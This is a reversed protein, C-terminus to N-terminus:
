SPCFDAAVVRGIALGAQTVGLTLLSFLLARVKERPEAPKRARRAGLGWAISGGISLGAGIGGLVGAAVIDGQRLGIEEDPCPHTQSAWGLYAISSLLSGIGFALMLRGRRQLAWASRVEPAVKLALAKEAAEAKPDRQPFQYFDDARVPAVQVMAVVLLTSLLLTRLMTALLM